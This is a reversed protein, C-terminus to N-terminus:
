APWPHRGQFEKAKSLTKILPVIPRSVFYAFAFIAYEPVSVKVIHYKNGHSLQSPSAAASQLIGVTAYFAGIDSDSPHSTNDFQILEAESPLALQLQNIQDSM